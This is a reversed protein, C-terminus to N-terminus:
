TLEDLGPVTRVDEVPLQYVQHTSTEGTVTVVSPPDGPNVKVNKLFLLIRTRQDLSFNDTSFITFPGRMFTVSNLAIAYDSFREIQLDPSATSNKDKITITATSPSVLDVEGTPNSLVISFTEHGEALSDASIPITITQSYTGEPFSLTGSVAAYDSGATASGDRTAYDVTIPGVGTANGGRAVSIQISGGDEEVTYSSDNLLLNNASHGSFNVDSMECTNISVSSPDFYYNTKSPILLGGGTAGTISYYGNADTTTSPSSSTGTFVNVIVGAMGAGTGFRTVRGSYHTTRPTASFDATQNASLNNFTRNGPAFDLCSRAPTITFDSGAPLDSFSYTGDPNTQTTRNQSGSLTVTVINGFLGSIQGSISFAVFANFNATRNGAVSTFDYSPPNFAYGAKTATVKYTGEALGTFSYDGNVDTQTTKSTAGSTLTLTAQGLGTSTGDLIRGSINYTPIPPASLPAWAPNLSDIKNNTIKVRNSGDANFRYLTYKFSIPDFDTVALMTGDPSWAPLFGDGVRHDSAGNADMVYVGNRGGGKSYYAIHQGDPSWAPESDEVSNNTLRTLNTGDAAVSYIEANALSDRTSWFAISTGDPSWAPDQDKSYVPGNSDTSLQINTTLKQLNSGDANMVWIEGRPFGSRDSVFAIKSGDPSWCPSWSQVPATWDTLPLLGTGDANIRFINLRGGLRNSHFIIQTGDPSWSPESDHFGQNSLITQGTGDDNIVAISSSAAGGGYTFAIKRLTTQAQSIHATILLLCISLVAKILSLSSSKM